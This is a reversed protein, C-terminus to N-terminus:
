TALKGDVSCARSSDSFLTWGFVRLEAVTVFQRQLQPGDIATNRLSEQLNEPSIKQLHLYWCWGCHGLGDHLFLDLSRRQDNGVDLGSQRQKIFGRAQDCCQSFLGSEHPAALLSRRYPYYPDEEFQAAVRRGWGAAGRGGACLWAAAFGAPMFASSPLSRSTRRTSMRSRRAAAQRWRVVLSRSTRVTRVATQLTLM